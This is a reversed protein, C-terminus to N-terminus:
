SSVNAIKSKIQYLSNNLDHFKFVEVEANPDVHGPFRVYMQNLEYYISKYWEPLLGNEFFIAFSRHAPDKYMSRDMCVPGLIGVQDIRENLKDVNLKIRQMKSRKKYIDLFILQNYAITYYFAKSLNTGYHEDRSYKINFDQMFLNFDLDLEYFEQMLRVYDKMFLTNDPRTINAINELSKEPDYVCTLYRPIYEYPDVTSKIYKIINLNFVEGEINPMYRGQRDFVVFNDLTLKVHKDVLLDYLVFRAGQRLQYQIVKERWGEPNEFANTLLLIVFTVGKNLEFNNMHPSGNMIVTNNVIDYRDPNIFSGNVFFFVNNKTYIMGRYEPIKIQNTTNGTVPVGDAGIHTHLHIPSIHLPGYQDAKNTKLFIFTIPDGRNIIDMPNRFIISLKDASIEFRGKGNMCVSNRFVLFNNYIFGDPDLVEPIKFTCQYDEEAYVTAEKMNTLDGYVNSMTKSDSVIQMTITKDFFGETGYPNFFFFRFRDTGIIEYTDEQMCIKNRYLLVKDGPHAQFSNDSCQFDMVIHDSTKSVEKFLGYRWYSRIINEDKVGPGGGGEDVFIDPPIDDDVIPLSVLTPYLENDLYYFTTAHYPDFLGEKNFSYLPEIDMRKPEDEEYICKFPLLIMEVHQIPNYKDPIRNKIFMTYYQDSKMIYIDSLKVFKRDIFLVFPYIKGEEWAYFCNFIDVFRENHPEMLFPQELGWFSIATYERSHSVRWFNQSDWLYEEEHWQIRLRRPLWEKQKENLHFATHVLNQDTYKMVDLPMYTQATPLDWYYNAKTDTGTFYMNPPVFAESYVHNTLICIDDLMGSELIHFHDLVGEEARRGIFIATTNKIAVTEPVTLVSFVFGDLFITVQHKTKNLVFTHWNNDFIWKCKKSQYFTINDIWFSFHDNGEICLWDFPSGTTANIYSIIPLVDTSIRDRLDIKFKFYISYESNITGVHQAINKCTNGKIQLGATDDFPEFFACKDGDHIRSDHTFSVGGLNVIDPNTPGSSDFRAQLLFAM